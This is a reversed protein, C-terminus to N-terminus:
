LITKGKYKKFKDKILVQKDIEIWNGQNDRCATNKYVNYHYNKLIAEAYVRCYDQNDKTFTELPLVYGKYYGSKWTTLSNDDLNELINYISQSAKKARINPMEYDNKYNNFFFALNKDFNLNMPKKATNITNSKYKYNDRIANLDKKINKIRHNIVKIFYRDKPKNFTEINVCSQCEAIANSSLSIIVILITLLTIKKCSIEM